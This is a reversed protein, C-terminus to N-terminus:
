LPGMLGIGRKLEGKPLLFTVRLGYLVSSTEEFVTTLGMWPTFYRLYWLRGLHSHMLM